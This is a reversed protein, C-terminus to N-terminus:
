LRVAALRRLVQAVVDAQMERFMEAEEMQKGLTATENYSLDRTLLLEAPAILVRGAPTDARFAFRLRLQFERVQGAATSAVVSKERVDALAQLVVEALAPAEVVQVTQALERRLADALPSRPAFGSLAIRAFPLPEARRRAFGCGAVLVSATGAAMVTAMAAAGSARLLARRRM